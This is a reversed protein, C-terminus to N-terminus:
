GRDIYSILYKSDIEVYTQLHESAVMENSMTEVKVLIQFPFRKLIM